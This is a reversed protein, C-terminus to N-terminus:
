LVYIFSREDCVKGAGSHGHCRLVDIQGQKWYNFAPLELFWKGTPFSQDFIARQRAQFDLRSLWPQINKRDSEEEAKRLEEERLKREEEQRKREDERHKMKQEQYKKKEEQLRKQEAWGQELNLVIEEQRRRQEAWGQELNVVIEEQLRKQEEKGQDLSVVIGRVITNTDRSIGFNASSLIGLITTCYTAIATFFGELSKKESSWRFNKLKHKLVATEKLRLIAVMNNMTKQLGFLPSQEPDEPTLDKVWAHGPQDKEAAICQELGVKLAAVCELRHLFEAREDDAKIVDKGFRYAEKLSEFIATSNTLISLPDM